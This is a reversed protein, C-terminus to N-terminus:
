QAGVESAKFGPVLETIDDGIKRLLRHPNHKEVMYIYGTEDIDVRDLIYNLNTYMIEETEMDIGVLKSNWYPIAATAVVYVTGSGAGVDSISLVSAPYTPDLMLNLARFVGNDLRYLKNDTGVVWPKGMEDVDVRAAIEREDKSKVQPVGASTFEGNAGRKILQGAATVAYTERGNHSVDVADTYGWQEKWSYDDNMFIRGTPGNESDIMAIGWAPEMIQNHTFEVFAGEVAIVNKAQFTLADQTKNLYYANNDTDVTLVIPGATEAMISSASTAILATAGIIAKKITSNM